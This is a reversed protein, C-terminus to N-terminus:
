RFKRSKCEGFFIKRSGGGRRLVGAGGDLFLSPANTGFLNLAGIASDVCCNKLDMTLETPVGDASWKGGGTRQMRLENTKFKMGSNELGATAPGQM